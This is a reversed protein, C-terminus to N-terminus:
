KNFVYSLGLTASADKHLIYNGTANLALKPTLNYSVGLSTIPKNVDIGYGLKGFVSFKNNIPIIGKAMIANTAFRNAHFYDYELGFHPNLQYGLTANWLLNRQDSGSSVGLNGGVYVGKTIPKQSKFQHTPSAAYSSVCCGVLAIAMIPKTILSRNVRYRKDGKYIKPQTYVYESKAFSSTYSPIFNYRSM